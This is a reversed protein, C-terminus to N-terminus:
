RLNKLDKEAVRLGLRELWETFAPISKMLGIYVKIRPVAYGHRCYIMNIGEQDAYVAIHCISDWERDGSDFTPISSYSFVFKTGDQHKRIEYHDPYEQLTEGALFSLDKFERDHVRFVLNSIGEALHPPAIEYASKFVLKRDDNVRGAWEFVPNEIEKVKVNGSFIVIERNDSM